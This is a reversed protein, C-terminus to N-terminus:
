SYQFGSINSDLFSGLPVLRVLSKSYNEVGDFVGFGVPLLRVLSKYDPYNAGVSKFGSTMRLHKSACDEKVMM